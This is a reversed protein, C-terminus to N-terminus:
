VAGIMANLVIIVLIAVTDSFEGVVGSVLAAVILVVIMFDAFQGFLMRLPGRGTETGIDNIGHKHLRETAEQHTLGSIPDTELRGAVAEADIRHWSKM